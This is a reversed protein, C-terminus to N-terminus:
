RREEESLFVGNKAKETAVRPGAEPSPATKQEEGRGLGTETLKGGSAPKLLQDKLQDKLKDKYPRKAQGTQGAFTPTLGAPHPKFAPSESYAFLKQTRPTM